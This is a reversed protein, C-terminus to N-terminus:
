KTDYIFDVNQYLMSTSANDGSSSATEEIKQPEPASYLVKRQFDVLYNENQEDEVSSFFLLINVVYM